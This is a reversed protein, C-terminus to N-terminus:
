KIALLAIEVLGNPNVLEVEVTARVPFDSTFVERYAENMGAYYQMDSVYVTAEVVDSWAYGAATLARGLRAFTERTQAEIDGHNDDTVGLNGSVWLRNGVEIAPSLNSGVRGPSGDAQPPIVVEKAAPGKVAVFQIEVDYADGPLGARMTARTPPAEPFHARYVANMDQFQSVDRIYVRASVIDEPGMGAAALIQDANSLITQVQTGVEGEVLSNDRGNRSVLGAMFLTDGTKIAYNYPSGPKMWGDPLVVQRDRGTEVATVAIEVLAEPRALNAIVTTRAPPEGSFFGGYVENMAPFDSLNKLYVTATAANDLSTGADKLAEDIRELTQRTQARIDGSFDSALMGSLYVIGGVKIAPSIPFSGGSAFVQKDSPQAAASAAAALVIAFALKSVRM